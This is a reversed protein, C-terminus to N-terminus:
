LAAKEAAVKAKLRAAARREQELKEKLAPSVNTLTFNM